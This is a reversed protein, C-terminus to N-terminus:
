RICNCKTCQIRPIEVLLIVPKEGIPITRLRRITVGRRIIDKSNCNPCVMLNYKSSIRLIYNRNEFKQHVYNYGYIGLAHYLFSTSM